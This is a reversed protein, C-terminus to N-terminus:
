SPVFSAASPQRPSVCVGSDVKVARSLRTATLPMGVRAGEGGLVTSIKWSVSFGCTVAPRIMLCRSPVVVTDLRDTVIHHATPAGTVTIMIHHSTAICRYGLRRVPNSTESGQSQLLLSLIAPISSQQFLIVIMYM